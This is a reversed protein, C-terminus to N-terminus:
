LSVMAALEIVLPHTVSGQQAAVSAFRTPAMTTWGRGSCRPASRTSTPKVVAPEAPPSTGADRARLPSRCPLTTVQYGEASRCAAAFSMLSMGDVLSVDYNDVGHADGLTFEAIFTLWSPLHLGRPRSSVLLLPNIPRRVPLNMLM